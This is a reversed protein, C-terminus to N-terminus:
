RDKRVESARAAKGSAFGAGSCKTTWSGINQDLSRVDFPLHHDILALWCPM